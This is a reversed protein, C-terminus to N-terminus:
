RTRPRTHSHVKTQLALTENAIVDINFWWKWIANTYGVWGTLRCWWANWIIGNTRFLRMLRIIGVRGRIRICGFRRCYRSWEITTRIQDVGSRWLIQMGCMFWTPLYSISYFSIVTALLSFSFSNTIRRYPMAITTLVTHVHPFKQYLYSRCKIHM